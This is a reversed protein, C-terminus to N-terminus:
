GVTSRSASWSAPPRTPCCRVTGVNVMYRDVPDAVLEAGAAEGLPVGCVNVTAQRGVDIAPKPTTNLVKRVLKNIGSVALSFVFFVFVLGIVVDLISNTLM